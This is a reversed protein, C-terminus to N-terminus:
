WEDDGVVVQEGDDEDETYVVLENGKRTVSVRTARITGTVAEDAPTRATKGATKGGIKAKKLAKKTISYAEGKGSGKGSGAATESAKGRGSPIRTGSPGEGNDAGSGKHAGKQGRGSAKGRVGRRDQLNEDGDRDDGVGGDEDNNDDGGAIGRALNLEDEVFVQAQVYTQWVEDACRKEWECDQLIAYPIRDRVRNTWRGPDEWEGTFEFEFDSFDRIVDVIQADWFFLSIFALPWDLKLLFPCGTVLNSVHEALANLEHRVRAPNTGGDDWDSVDTTWLDPEFIPGIFGAPTLGGAPQYQHSVAEDDIEGTFQVRIDSYLHAPSGTPNDKRYDLAELFTRRMVEAATMDEGAGDEEGTAAAAATQRAEQRHGDNLFEWDDNEFLEAARSEPTPIPKGTETALAIAAATSPVPPNVFEKYKMVVGELLQRVYEKSDDSTPNDMKYVIDSDWGFTKKDRRNSNWDDLEPQKVSRAQVWSPYWDVRYYTQSGVVRQNLIRRIDYRNSVKPKVGQRETPQTNNKKGRKSAGGKGKDTSGSTGSTKSTPKNSSRKSAKAVVKPPQATTSGARRPYGRGTGAKDAKGAARDQDVAEAEGQEDPSDDGDYAEDLEENQGDGGQMHADDDVEGESDGQVDEVTPVARKARKRPRDAVANDGKRKSGSKSPPRPAKEVHARGKPHGAPRNRSM